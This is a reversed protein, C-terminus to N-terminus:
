RLVAIHRALRELCQAWEGAHDDRDAVTQFQSQRLTLRTKGGDEALTIEVLM